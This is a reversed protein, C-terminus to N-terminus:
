QLQNLANKINKCATKLDTLSAAYSIRLYNPAGFAQGDVTTVNAFNLLYMALDAANNIQYSLHKKGFFYSIDPFVYFAGPPVNIKIGKVKSLQNILLNRRVLFKDRMYYTPELNGNLATIAAEQAISNTGSTFQGQLKECAFAIDKHAGIYGIRWGTMAFGKSLGNITIVRDYISAISAISHHTGTYNIHEYIEDSIIYVHPNKRFVEALSELESQSYISGTPNSPSSFIFVKTKKTIAEELQKATIKFDQSQPAEIYKIKGDLLKVMDSYSVWYPTPIIVEDDTDLLAMLVNMISNKAGTSVVIQDRNYHLKNERLFKASIADRLEPLGAVPTYKTKGAKIAAIAANKIFKPTDFDPEGFSLNIIPKGSAKLARGAKAMAITQSEEFLSIRKALKPIFSM